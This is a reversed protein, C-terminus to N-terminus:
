ILFLNVQDLFSRGLTMYESPYTAFISATENPGYVTLDGGSFDMIADLVSVSDHLLCSCLCILM